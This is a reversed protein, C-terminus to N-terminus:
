DRRWHAPGEQPQQQGQLPWLADQATWDIEGTGSYFMRWALSNWEGVPPLGERGLEQYKRRMLTMIGEVISVM